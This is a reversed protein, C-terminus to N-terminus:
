IDKKLPSVQNKLSTIRLLATIFTKDQYKTEARHLFTILQDYTNHLSNEQRAFENPHEISINSKELLKINDHLSYLVQNKHM